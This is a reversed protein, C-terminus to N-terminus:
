SCFNTGDWSSSGEVILTKPSNPGSEFNVELPLVLSRSQGVNQGTSDLLTTRSVDICVYVVVVATGTRTVTSSQLEMNSFASAGMTHHGDSKMVSFSQEDQKLQKPSDWVALRNVGTGGDHAVQDSAALYGGYAKKAAALAAADSKFVPAVSPESTPIVHPAQQVCGTLALAAAILLAFGAAKPTIHM